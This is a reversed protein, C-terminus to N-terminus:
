KKQPRHLAIQRVLEILKKNLAQTNFYNILVITTIVILALVVLLDFVRAFHILGVVGLLIKPRISLIIFGVWLGYWVGAEFASIVKKKQNLRVLYIMGLGFSIAVLQFISM